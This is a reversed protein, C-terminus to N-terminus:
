YVFGMVASDKATVVRQSVRGFGGGNMYYNMESIVFSGDPKVSEVYAVHGVPAYSFVAVAGSVPLKGEPRHPRANAWWTIANGGWATIDRRSAVYWTCQGWPFSNYGHSPPVTPIGPVTPLFVQPNLAGNPASGAPVQVYRGPVLPNDTDLHNYDLIVRPDLGLRHAFQSPREPGQIPVLAGAGPPLLVMTGARPEEGPGLDNAWGIAAADLHYTSALSGVTTGTPAILTQAPRTIVEPQFSSREIVASVVVAQAVPVQARAVPLAMPTRPAVLPLLLATVLM